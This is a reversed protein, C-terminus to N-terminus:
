PARRLELWAGLAARDHVTGLATQARRLAALRGPGALEQAGEPAVAALAAPGRGFRVAVGVTGLLFLMVINALEFVPQLPLAM